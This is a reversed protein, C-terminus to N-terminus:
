EVSLISFVDSGNEHLKQQMDENGMIGTVANLDLTNPNDWWSNIDMKITIITEGEETVEFADVPITVEFYYHNGMSPGSHAQYNGPNGATNYKGELKMYHYGGGMPIPWEMHSEPPNTFRGNTNKLSDLGFIFSVETYTGAAINEAPNFLTTSVDSADIYHEEDILVPGGKSGQLTINSIFYKLTEISYTNGFANTYKINNFEIEESGVSHSFKFKVNTNNEQPTGEVDDKACSSLILIFALSFIFLRNNKTNM